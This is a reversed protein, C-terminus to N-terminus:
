LNLSANAPDRRLKRRIVYIYVILCVTLALQVLPMWQYNTIELELFRFSMGETLRFFQTGSFNGLITGVATFATYFSLFATQNTAPLKVFQINSFNLSVCPNFVYCIMNSIIYIVQTSETVCANLVFTVSYGCLAVILMGFWSRRNILRAWIPTFIITMPLGLMGCLSIYTYSMQAKELLYVNFYPGLFGGLVCWIFHVCAMMMFDKNRIPLFLMRIGVKEAKPDKEYPKEPIQLFFKFEGVVAIVALLRLFLFGCYEPSLGLVSIESAKIGDMALGAFFATAVSIVSTGLSSLTFYNARKPLPLVQLHWANYASGSFSSILNVLILTVMFVTLRFFQSGPLLPVVGLVVIQLFYMIGRTIMLINKRKELRELMLPALLQLFTCISSVMTIYGIYVESAGMYLMLGTFYIGSILQAIFSCFYNGFLMGRRGKACGDSPDILADNVIDFVSSLREKVFAAIPSSVPKM